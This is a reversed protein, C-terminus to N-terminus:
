DASSSLFALRDNKRFVLLSFKELKDNGLYGHGYTRSKNFERHYLPSWYNGAILREIAQLYGM